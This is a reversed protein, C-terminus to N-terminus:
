TLILINLNQSLIFISLSTPLSQKQSLILIGLIQCLTLISLNQSLILSTLLSM